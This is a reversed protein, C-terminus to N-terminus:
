QEIAMEAKKRCYYRRCYEANKGSAVKRKEKPLEVNKIRAM